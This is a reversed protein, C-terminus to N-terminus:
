MWISYQLWPFRAWSISRCSSKPRGILSSFIFCIAESTAFPKSNIWLLPNTCLSKFGSLMNLYDSLTTVFDFFLLKLADLRRLNIWTRVSLLELSFKYWMLRIVYKLWPASTTETSLSRFSDNLFSEFLMKLIPSRPWTERTRDQLSGADSVPSARKMEISRNWSVQISKFFDSM